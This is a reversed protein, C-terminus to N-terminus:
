QWVIEYWRISEVGDAGRFVGAVHNARMYGIAVSDPLLLRGRFRGDQDFIDLADDEVWMEGEFRSPMSVYVLLQGDEAFSMGKIPPKHTPIEPIRLDDGGPEARVSRTLLEHAAAREEEPVPIVPVDRTVVRTPTLVQSGPPPLMAIRYTDTRATAFTGFPSWTWVAHPQYPVAFGSISTGGSPLTRVIRLRDREVEPLAPFPVTDLIAGDRMRIFAPPPRNPGPREKFFSLWIIGGTDVAVPRSSLPFWAGRGLSWTTDVAGDPKYFTVRDPLRSDRLVVRGDELLALGVPSRYEGPGSGVRGVQRLFKGDRDYQRLAPTASNYGDLVWVIGDPAVVIDVIEAFQYEPPSNEDEGIAWKLALTASRGGAHLGGDQRPLVAPDRCAAVASSFALVNLCARVSCRM